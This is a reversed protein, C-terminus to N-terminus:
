VGDLICASRQSKFHDVSVTSTNINPYNKGLMQVYFQDLCPNLMCTTDTPCHPFLLDVEKCNMMPFNGIIDLRNSNPGQNFPYILFKESAAVLPRSAFYAMLASKYSQKVGFGSLTSEGKTVSM